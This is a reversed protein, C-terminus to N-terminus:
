QLFSIIQDMDTTVEGCLYSKKQDKDDSQFVSDGMGNLVHVIEGYNNLFKTFSNTFRIESSIPAKIGSDMIVDDDIFNSYVGVGYAMHHTVNDGLSYSHYGQDAYNAQTVDYPLESQYLYVEGYNGNWQVLNGLAHECFLGYARVHHGNVELSSGVYNPSNHIKGQIDHDARWLWAHDVIVHSSEIQVMTKVSVQTETSNNSGGVRAFVDQILGPEEESGSDSKTGWTVLTNGMQDTQPEVILGAVRVGVVDGVEILSNGNTSQLTPFGIGLVVQRDKIIRIPEDFKYM